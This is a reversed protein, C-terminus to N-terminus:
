AVPYLRFHHQGPHQRAFEGAAYSHNVPWPFTLTEVTEPEGKTYSHVVAWARAEHGEPFVALVEGRQQRHAAARITEADCPREVPYALVCEEVGQADRWVVRWRVALVDPPFPFGPPAM